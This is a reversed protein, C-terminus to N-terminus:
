APVGILRKEIAEVALTKAEEVGLADKLHFKGIRTRQLSSLCAGCGLKEGLHVGHGCFVPKRAEGRVPNKLFLKGFLKQPGRSVM